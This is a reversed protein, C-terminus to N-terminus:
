MQSLAAIDPDFEDRSDSSVLPSITERTQYEAEFTVATLRKYTQLM